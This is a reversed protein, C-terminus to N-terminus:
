KSMSNLMSLSLCVESPPTNAGSVIERCNRPKMDKNRNIVRLWHTISKTNRRSKGINAMSQLTNLIRQNYETFAPEDDLIVHFGKITAETSSRIVESELRPDSAELWLDPDHCRGASGSTRPEFGLPGAM